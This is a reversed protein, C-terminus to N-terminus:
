GQGEENNIRKRKPRMGAKANTTPLFINDHILKHRQVRTSNHYVVLGSELVEKKINGKELHYKLVTYAQDWNHDNLKIIEEFTIIPEDM